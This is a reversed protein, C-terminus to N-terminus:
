TKIRMSRTPVATGWSKQRTTVSHTKCSVCDGHRHLRQEGCGACWRHDFGLNAGFNLAGVFRM